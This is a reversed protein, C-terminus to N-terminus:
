QLAITVPNANSGDATQLQVAVANGTVGGPVMVNLQYIGVFQPSLGSFTVQAMAGGIQVTPTSVTQRMTDSSAAGDLPPPNVMGLGTAYFTITDGATAPHANFGPLPGMAATITGDGNIALAQLTGLNLAILAPAFANVQVAMPQSSGASRNVIVDAPGPVVEWPVQATIQADSVSMLPAAMGNITVSSVDSLATSLPVSNAVSLGAALGSGFISILSGPAM